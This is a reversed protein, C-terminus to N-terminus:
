LTRFMLRITMRIEVKAWWQVLYWEVIALPPILLM